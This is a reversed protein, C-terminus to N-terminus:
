RAIYICVSTVITQSNPSNRHMIFVPRAKYTNSNTKIDNCSAWLTDRKLKLLFLPNDDFTKFNVYFM